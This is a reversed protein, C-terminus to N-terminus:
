CIIIVGFFLTTNNDTTNNMILPVMNCLSQTTITVHNQKQVFVTRRHKMCCRANNKVDPVFSDIFEYRYVRENVHHLRNQFGDFRNIKGRWKRYREESVCAHM